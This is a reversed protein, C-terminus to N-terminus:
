EWRFLRVAAVGFLVAWATMVLLPQAPPFHGQMAAAMARVAANLPTYDGIHRWIPALSQLPAWLGAFFLLPYLLVTGVVGAVQPAPSIAAILLGISFMAAIALVASLVFGAMAPALRVGFFVDAGGVLILVAVAATSLNTLVLAALLWSRPAPTASFRRLVGAQRNTVLPIPLSVLAILCLSLCILVPVYQAFLTLTTGAAPKKLAPMASFIVLFIVPVVVGLVLGIPARLALKAEVAVLQAFARAPPRTSGTRRAIAHTTM